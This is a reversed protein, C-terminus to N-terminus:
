SRWGGHCMMRGGFGVCAKVKKDLHEFATTGRSCLFQDLNCGRVLDMVLCLCGLDHSQTIGYITVFNRDGCYKLNNAERMLGDLQEPDVVVNIRKVAVTIPMVSEKELSAVSVNQKNSRPAALLAGHNLRLDQFNLVGDFLPETRKCVTWVFISGFGGKGLVRFNAIGLSKTICSGSDETGEVELKLSDLDYTGRDYDFVWSSM